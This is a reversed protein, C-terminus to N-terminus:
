RKLLYIVQGKYITESEVKFGLRKNFILYKKYCLSWNVSWKNKTEELLKTNLKLGLNFQPYKEDTTLYGDYM